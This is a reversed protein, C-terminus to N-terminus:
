GGLARVLEIGLSSLTEIEEPTDVGVGAVYVGQPSFLIVMQVQEQPLNAPKLPSRQAWNVLPLTVWPNLAQRAAFPNSTLNIYHPELRAEPPELPAASEIGPSDEPSFGYLRLAQQGFMRGLGGLLGSAVRVGAPKQALLLFGEPFKYDPSFWRTVPADGIQLRQVQWTVGDTEGSQASAHAPPQPIDLGLAQRLAMSAVQAAPQTGGQGLWQNLQEVKRRKSERGSSFATTFPIEEGTDLVIAIRYTRDGDSDHSSQLEFGTVQDLPHERFTTRWLYRRRLSFRNSNRDLTITNEASLLLGALGIIMLILSAVLGGSMWGPIVLMSLGFLMLCIFILWQVRASKKIVLLNPDSQNM